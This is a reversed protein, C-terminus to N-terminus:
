GGLLVEELWGEGVFGVMFESCFGPCFVFLITLFFFFFLSRWSSADFFSSLPFLKSVVFFYGRKMRKLDGGVGDFISRSYLTAPILNIM